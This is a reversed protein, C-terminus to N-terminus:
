RGDDTVQRRYALCEAAQRELEALQSKHRRIEAEIEEFRLNGDALRRDTVDQRMSLTRMHELIIETNTANREEAAILRGLPGDDRFLEQMYQRTERSLEEVRDLVHRLHPTHQLPDVDPPISPMEHDPQTVLEDIHTPRDDTM